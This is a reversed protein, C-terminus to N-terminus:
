ATCSQAGKSKVGVMRMDREPFHFLPREERVDELFDSMFKHLLAKSFCWRHCMAPDQHTPDGYLPLLTYKLNTEGRRLFEVVKDLCPVEIALTGGPKLVRVWEQLVARTEWLYFHELVHIAMAEDAYGDSFPLDRLDASVDPKRRSHNSEFDVNVWGELLKPGCGLNLRVPSAAVSLGEEGGGVM